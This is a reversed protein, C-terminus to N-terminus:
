IFYNAAIPMRRGVGFSKTTVRLPTAAQTRKFENNNIKKIIDTVLKSDYGLAIIDAASKKYEIYNSIIDDLQEYPPLSDSDLQGPRLEATPPKTISNEPIVEGDKNIYHALKYVLTKPVDALVSLAGCMDGYLTCYGMALESKNGTTLLLAKTKNSIAMLILGRIRSQINEETTDPSYDKFISNTQNLISSYIDNIKIKDFEINCNQALKQADIVSGESSYMSPLAIAYVNKAGVAKYALACTVASDIGGSVGLVVKKFGTKKVYDKIGLVLADHLFSIDDQIYRISKSVQNLNFIKFDENFFDLQTIIEAKKNLAFSGGDFILQDNAGVQNVFVVDIGNRKAIDSLIEVRKQHKNYEFPSAAINVLIDIKQKLLSEIPKIEKNFDNELWPFKWMDECITLGIKKGKLEITTLKEAQHFYRKEDFVDYNPLKSKHQISIIKGHQIVIASNYLNDSEKYPTGIIIAADTLSKSKLLILNLSAKIQNIFEPYTLLDKAPYGTLVCESFIILDIKKKQVNELSSIIKNTNTQIDGIVPNLQVLAVNFM